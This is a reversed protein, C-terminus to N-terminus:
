NQGPNSQEPVRGALVQKRGVWQPRPGQAAGGEMHVRPIGPYIRHTVSPGVPVATAPSRPSTQSSPASPLQGTADAKPMEPQGSGAQSTGAMANFRFKVSGQENGDSLVAAVLQPNPDLHIEILRLNNQNLEATIKQVQNTESNQVFVAEQDGDKLWSVLFLKNFVSPQRKPAVTKPFTFPNQEWVPTYREIKFGAPAQDAAHIFAPLATFVALTSFRIFVRRDLKLAELSRSVVDSDRKSIFSLRM